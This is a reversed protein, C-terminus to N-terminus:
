GLFLIYVWACKRGNNFFENWVSRRCRTGSLFLALYHVERSNFDKPTKKRRPQKGSTTPRDLEELEADRSIRLGGEDISVLENGQTVTIGNAELTDNDTDNRNSAEEAITASFVATKVDQTDIDNKFTNTPAILIAEADTSFDRGARGCRQVLSCFSPPVGWLIVRKINRM